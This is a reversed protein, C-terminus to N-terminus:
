VRLESWMNHFYGNQVNQKKAKWTKGGVENEINEYGRIHILPKDGYEALLYIFIYIYWKQLKDALQFDPYKKNTPLRIKKQQFTNTLM